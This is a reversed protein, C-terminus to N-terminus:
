LTHSYIKSIISWSSYMLVKFITIFPSVFSKIKTFYLYKIIINQSASFILFALNTKDGNENGAVKILINYHLSTAVDYNTELPLWFMFSDQMNTRYLHNKNRIKIM